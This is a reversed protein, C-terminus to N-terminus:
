IKEYECLGEMEPDNEVEEADVVISTSNKDSGESNISVPMKYKEYVANIEHLFDSEEKFEVTKNDLALEEIKNSDADGINGVEGLVRREVINPKKKSNAKLTNKSSTLAANENLFDTIKKCGFSKLSKLPNSGNKAKKIKHGIGGKGPSKCAAKRNGM